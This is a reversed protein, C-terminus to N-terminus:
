AVRLPVANDKALDTAFSDWVPFLTPASYTYWDKSRDPSRWKVAHPTDVIIGNARMTLIARKVLSLDYGDRKLLKAKAMITRFASSKVDVDAKTQPQSFWWVAFM